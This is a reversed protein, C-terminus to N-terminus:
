RGLFAALADIEHGALGLNPMRAGATEIGGPPLSLLFAQVHEPTYRRGTMDLLNVTQRRSFEPHNHCTACGKGEFLGRGREVASVLPEAAGTQLVNITLRLTDGLLGSGATLDVTWVGPEPFPIDVVYAGPSRVGRGGARIEELRGGWLARAASDVVMPGKRAEVRGTLDNMPTHGHQRVTYIFGAGGGVWTHTPVTKLTIVVWGGADIVVPGLSLAAVAILVLFRRTSM